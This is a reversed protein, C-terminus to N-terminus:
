VTYSFISGDRIGKLYSINCVPEALAPLYKKQRQLAKYLDTKSRLLTSADAFSITADM